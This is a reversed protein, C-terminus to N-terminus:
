QFYFGLVELKEQTSSHTRKSYLSGFSFPQFYQSRSFHFIETKKHEIALGFQKLLCLMIYYSCFLNTTSILLSKNQSILLGNNVFSLVSVTIKLIKVRKEFIYFILSLYLASLILYLTSGQRIRINIDFFPSSFNNWFYRTKRGIM